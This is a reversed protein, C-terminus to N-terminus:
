QSRTGIFHARAPLPFHVPYDTVALVQGQPSVQAVQKLLIRQIKFEPYVWLGIRDGSGGRFKVQTQARHTFQQRFDPTILASLQEGDLAPYGSIRELLANLRFPSFVMGSKLTAQKRTGDLANLEFLVDMRANNTRPNDISKEDDDDLLYYYSCDVTLRGMDDDMREEMVPHWYAQFQRMDKLNVTQVTGEVRDFYYQDMVTILQTMTTGLRIPQGTQRSRGPWLVMACVLYERNPPLTAMQAASLTPVFDLRGAMVNHLLPYGQKIWARQTEVDKVVLFLKARPIRRPLEPPLDIKLPFSVPHNQSYVLRSRGQITLPRTDIFDLRVGDVRCFAKPGRAGSRFSRDQEPEQWYPASRGIEQLGAEITAMAVSPRVGMTLSNLTEPALTASLLPRLGPMLSFAIASMETADTM